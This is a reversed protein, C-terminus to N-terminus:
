RLRRERRGQVAQNESAEGSARPLSLSVTAGDIAVAGGHADAIAAVIALGLGAGGRTRADDGRTFREFARPVLDDPFGPGDDGVEIVVQDGDARAQLRVEGGGHRLANDVLNGIAQRLRLPDARAALGDTAAVTLTRGAQGARDAFRQQAQVLLEGVDVREARVPVQGDASRALLLLDDALQALQDVEEVGATLSARAEAPLDTRLAAELETKLVALPTRLEHSADAVFRRERDFSEELRALMQNLTTGLRWIEDHADPLPLRDGPQRLSVSEARSRIREVPTLAAAALLYGIGATALVAIPAAIALSSVFGDLTEDRDDLSQGVVVVRVGDPASAPRAVFRATNEIGPVSREFTVVDSRAVREAERATLVAALAGGSRTIVTGDPALVQAFTEEPEALAPSDSPHLPEGAREVVTTLEDARARLSADISDDLDARLQTYAFVAFAALVIAMAVAFAATLRM